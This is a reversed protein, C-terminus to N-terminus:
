KKPKRIFLFGILLFFIPLILNFINDIAITVRNLVFENIIAFIGVIFFVVGIKKGGYKLLPSKKEGLYHGPSYQNEQWEKLDELYEEKNKKNSM